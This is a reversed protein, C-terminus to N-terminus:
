LKSLIIYTHSVLHYKMKKKGIEGTYCYDIARQTAKNDLNNIPINKLSPTGLNNVLKLNFYESVASLVVSHVHYSLFFMNKFNFYQLLVNFIHKQCM